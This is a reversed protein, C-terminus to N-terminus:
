ILKYIKKSEEFLQYSSSKYYIEFYNFILYNEFYKNHLFINNFHM